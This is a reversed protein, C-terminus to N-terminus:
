PQFLGRLDDVGAMWSGCINYVLDHGETGCRCMEQVGGPHRGRPIVVVEGPLRNWHWVM